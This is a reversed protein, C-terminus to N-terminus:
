NGKFEERRFRLIALSVFIVSATTVTAIPAISPVANGLMLNLSYEPIREPLMLSVWTSSSGAFMQILRQLFLFILPIGIVPSRSKFFVGLMISLSLWFVLYLAQLTFGQALNLWSISGVNLVQLAVNFVVGQLLVVIAFFWAINTLLKSLIFSERSLPMSLVWEATGSQKEDVVDSQTLIIVGFVLMWGILGIYVEMVSSLSFTAPNQRLQVLAVLSIGNILILWIASQMLWKHTNWWRSNEERLKNKFGCLIGSGDIAKMTREREM